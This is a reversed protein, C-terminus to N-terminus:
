QRLANTVDARSARFAPIGTALLSTISVAIATAAYTAPDTASVGYIQNALLPALLSAGTVGITIGTATVAAASRILLALVDAPRGGLALRIGVERRRTAATYAVANYLGLSALSLALVGFVGLLVSATRQGVVAFGLYANM